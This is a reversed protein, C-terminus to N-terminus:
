KKSWNIISFLEFLPTAFVTNKKIFHKEDWKIEPLEAIANVKRIFSIKQALRCYRSSEIIM